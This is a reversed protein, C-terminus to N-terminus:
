RVCTMREQRGRNHRHAQVEIGLAAHKHNRSWVGASLSNCKLRDADEGGHM